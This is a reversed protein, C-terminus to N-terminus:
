KLKELVKPFQDLGSIWVWRHHVFVYYESGSGDGNKYRISIIYVAVDKPIIEFVRKCRGNPDQKRVDTVKVSEIEGSKTMEAAIKDVNEVLPQTGKALIPKLKEAHKPFLREIDKQNPIMARLTKERDEKNKSAMGKHWARVAEELTPKAKADGALANNGHIAGVLILAPCACHFAIRVTM